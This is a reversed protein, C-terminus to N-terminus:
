VLAQSHACLERANPVVRSIEESGFGVSAVEQVTPASTWFKPQAGVNVRTTTNLRGLLPRLSDGATM